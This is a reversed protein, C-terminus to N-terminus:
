PRSRRPSAERNVDIRREGIGGVCDRRDRWRMGATEASTPRRKRRGPGARPGEHPLVERHDEAGHLPPAPPRRHCEGGGPGRVGEGARRDRREHDSHDVEERLAEVGAPVVPGGGGQRRGPVRGRGRDAPLPALLLADQARARGERGGEQPRRRAGPLRRLVHAQAGEGGRRRARGGHPGQRRGPQRRPGREGAAGPLFAKLLPYSGQLFQKCSSPPSPPLHAGNQSTLM